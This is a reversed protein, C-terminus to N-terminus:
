GGESDALVDDEFNLSWELEKIAEKMAELLTASAPPDFVINVKLTVYSKAAELTSDSDDDIFEDWTNKKGDIRFGEKPGVGMRKLLAFVTNIHMILIKDFAECDAGVGIGEKVSTLISEM